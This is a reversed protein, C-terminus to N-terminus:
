WRLLCPPVRAARSFIHSSQPNSPTSRHKKARLPTYLCSQQPSPDLIHPIRTHLLNHIDRQQEPHIYGLPSEGTSSQQEPQLRGRNTETHQLLNNRANMKTCAGTDYHHESKNDTFSDVHGVDVCELQSRKGSSPYTIHRPYLLGPNEHSFRQTKKNPQESKVPGEQVKFDCSYSPQHGNSCRKTNRQGTGQDPSRFTRSGSSSREPTRGALSVWLSEESPHAPSLALISTPSPRIASLSYRRSQEPLPQHSSVRHVIDAMLNCDVLRSLYMDISCSKLLGGETPDGCAIRDSILKELPQDQVVFKNM